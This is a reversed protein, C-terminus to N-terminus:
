LTAKHSFTERLGELFLLRADSSLSAYKKKARRYTKRTIPDNPNIISRLEKAKNANM